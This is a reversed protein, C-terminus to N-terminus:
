AARVLSQHEIPVSRTLNGQRDYFEVVSKAALWIAELGECRFRQGAVHRDCVLVSRTLARPDQAGLGALGEIVVQYLGGGPGGHTGSRRPDSERVEKGGNGELANGLIGNESVAPAQFAILRNRNGTTKRRFGLARLTAGPRGRQPGTTDTAGASAGVVLSPYQGSRGQAPTTPPAVRRVDIRGGPGTGM